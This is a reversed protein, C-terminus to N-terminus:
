HTLPKYRQDPRPSKVTRLGKRRANDAIEDIMRKYIERVDDAISTEDGSEPPFELVIDATIEAAIANMDAVSLVLSPNLTTMHALRAQLKDSLYQIFENFEDDTIEHDVNV